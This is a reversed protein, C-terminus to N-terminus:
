GVLAYKTQHLGLIKLKFAGNSPDLMVNTSLQEAAIRRRSRALAAEQAARTVMLGHGQPDHLGKNQVGDM